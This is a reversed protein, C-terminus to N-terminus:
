LTAVMKVIRTGSLANRMEREIAVRRPPRSLLGVDRAGEKALTM